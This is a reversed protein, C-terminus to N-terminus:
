LGIGNVIFPGFIVLLVSGVMLMLPLMMRVGAKAAMEEALVSRRQRLTASQITLAEVLPTGKTESQCVMAVFQQVTESGSRASLDELAEVRTRGLALQELVVLLEERCIEHGLGLERSAFGLASPFDTGAGMCLVCLDMAAPLSRELAKARESAIGRLSLTPLAGCWVTLVAGWIPELDMAGVFWAGMGAGALLGMASLALVEEACLGAADGARRILRGVTPKLTGLPLAAVMGALALLLPEVSAFSAAQLRAAARNRGRRGWTPALVAPVSSLSWGLAGLLSGAALMAIVRLGCLTLDSTWM